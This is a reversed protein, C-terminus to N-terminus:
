KELWEALVIAHNHDRDAAGYLLTVPTRSSADLLLTLDKEESADLEAIYRKRFEEFKAPEHSFWKRLDPTPAVGKLWLEPKLDDKKVGRPWLRDVLVTTGYTRAGNLVDHVKATHIAM